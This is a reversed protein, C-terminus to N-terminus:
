FVRLSGSLRGPLVVEVTTETRQICSLKRGDLEAEYIKGPAMNVLIRSDVNGCNELGIVAEKGDQRFKRKQIWTKFGATINGPQYYANAFIGVPTSLGGFQHHWGGRGSAINIFEYTNYSFDTERSYADLATQAVKYALDGNGQDLFAKWMMWQYPFWVCGNWYGNGTYYGASMDVASLGVPSFMEEPSTLHGLIRKEQEPTCIGALYPVCGEMGKNYNEGSETTLRCKYNGQEDHVVYSFYGSEEDWSYTQLAEAFHTIDTEYEELDEEHGTKEAIQKLIRASVILMTASIVPAVINQLGYHFVHMQAPLDDMGSANYYYDYTNTLGTAFKATTSHYIRGALFEYFMKARSYYGDLARKDSTRQLMEYLLMIQVPVPSGHNLYAYDKNDQTSLYLNLIYESLKPNVELLGLGIFGSDWTYLSDWRKGPTFHRIFTGHCYIPYVINTLTAARLLQGCLEYKKGDETFHFVKVKKEAEEIANQCDKETIEKLSDTGIVAYETWTEGPEAFMSHVMINHYYGPEEKRAFSSTPSKQMDSCLTYPSSIRYIIADELCGSNINRELVHEGFTKVHYSEFVEDYRYCYEQEEKHISVPHVDRERVQATVAEANRAETVLLCDLEVGGTGLSEMKVTLEGFRTYHLPIKAFTLQNSKRFTYDVSKEVGRCVTTIKFDADQAEPTRYRIVLVGDEYDPIMQRYTVQDGKDQGFAKEPIHLMYERTIRDGLGHGDTFRMDLFEGKKMGDPNLGDWPRPSAYEYESYDLADWLAAETPRSICTYQRNKYEIAAFLNLVFNQRLTSNNVYNIRIASTNENIAAFSIDAYVLDKELLEYRYSYYRLDGSADWPHYGSPLVTNPPRVGSFAITPFVVLEFRVGKASTKEEPITRSIGMYKKSYPGWLPLNERIDQETMM